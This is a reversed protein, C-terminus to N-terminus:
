ANLANWSGPLAGVTGVSSHAGTMPFYLSRLQASTINTIPNQKNVIIAIGDKAVVHAKLDANYTAFDDAVQVVMNSVMGFHAVNDRANNAGTSSGGMGVMVSVSKGCIAEYKKALEDMLPKLSTSGTIVININNPITADAVFAPANAVVSVYGEAKIIEQAEASSLFRLFDANIRQQNSPTGSVDVSSERYVVRLPRQLAYTGNLINEVSAEVGDVKLKKVADTVYGM